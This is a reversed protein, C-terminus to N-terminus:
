VHARAAKPERNQCEWEGLVGPNFVWDQFYNKIGRGEEKMSLQNEEISGNLYEQVPGMKM